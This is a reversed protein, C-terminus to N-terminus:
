KLYRDMMHYLDDLDEPAAKGNKMADQLQQKMIVRSTSTISSRVAALQILIDNPDRGMEVMRKVSNLHGISRSIRNALLKRQRESDADEAPAGETRSDKGALDDGTTGLFARLYSGKEYDRAGIGCGIKDINMDPLPGYSCIYYKLLAASGPTCFGRGTGSAFVPVGQLLCVTTPTPISLTGNETKIEGSGIQITSGIINEPSLREILMCCCVVDYLLSNAADGHFHIDDMCCNYTQCAADTLLFLIESSDRQVRSSLYMAQIEGRIDQLTVGEGDKLTFFEEYVPHELSSLQFQTGPIGAHTTPSANLRGQYLGASYFDQLFEEKDDILEWLAACIMDETAGNECDLYLTRM